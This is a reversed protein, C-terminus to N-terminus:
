SAANLASWEPDPDDIGFQEIVRRQAEVLGDCYDPRDDGPERDFSKDHHVRIAEVAAVRGATAGQAYVSDLGTLDLHDLDYPVDPAHADDGMLWGDDIGYQCAQGVVIAADQLGDRLHSGDVQEAEGLLYRAVEAIGREEGFGYLDTLAELAEFMGSHM